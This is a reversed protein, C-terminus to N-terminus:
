NRNQLEEKSEDLDDYPTIGNNYYKKRFKIGLEEGIENVPISISDSLGDSGLYCFM